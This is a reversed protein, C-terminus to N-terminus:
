KQQEARPASPSPTRGTGLMFTGVSSAILLDDDGEQVARARVFAIVQTLQYCEATVVLDVHPRAPRMYDIRLDLTAIGGQEPLGFRPVAMGSANDLVATIVGGHLVGTDPDGVLHEAYPVRMVCYGDRHEVLQVGLARAHPIRSLHAHMDQVSGGGPEDGSMQM